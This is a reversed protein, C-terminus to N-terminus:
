RGAPHPRLMGRGANAFVTGGNLATYKVTIVVDDPHATLRGSRQLRWTSVAGTRELPLYRDDDYGLEFLGNNDGDVQSLAIEQSPRWDARVSEPPPGKPDLLHQVARTDALLVTKHTLQTLTANVWLPQRDADLFAVTLTRLQRCYHGPFDHDFEAETLTFECSG